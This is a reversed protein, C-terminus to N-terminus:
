EINQVQEKLKQLETKMEITKKSILIDQSKAAITNTERLMEQLIFDLKIGSPSGSLVGTFQNIHSNLREIEETVDLRNVLNAIESAFGSESPEAGAEAIKAKLVKMKRRRSLGARKSLSASYRSLAEISRQISKELNAGESERMSVLSRLANRLAKPAERKMREGSPKKGAARAVGPLCLLAVPDIGGKLGFDAALERIGSIYKGAAKKDISIEPEVGEGSKEVVLSVRGRRLAARAFKKFEAELFLAEDPLRATLELFRHNVSYLYIRYFSKGDSFVAEGFGTMSQLLKPKKKM